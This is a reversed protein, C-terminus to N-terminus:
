TNQEPEAGAQAESTASETQEAPKEPEAPTTPQETKQQGTLAQAGVIAGEADIFVVYFFKGPILQEIAAPNTLYLRIEGSPTAQSFRVDEPISNDYLPHLTVEVDSTDAFRAVKTVHFKARVM